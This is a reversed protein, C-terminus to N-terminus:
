KKGRLTEYVFVCTAAMFAVFFCFMIAEGLITYYPDM